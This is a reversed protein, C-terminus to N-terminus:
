NFCLLYNTFLDTNHLIMFQMTKNISSIYYKANYEGKGTYVLINEDVLTNLFM